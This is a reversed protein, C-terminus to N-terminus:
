RTGALLKEPEIEALSEVLGILNGLPEASEGEDDAVSVSGLEEWPKAEAVVKDEARGLKFAQTGATLYPSHTSILVQRAGVRERVVRRAVNRLRAQLEPSLRWEPEELALYREESLCLEATLSVLRLLGASMQSLHLPGAPQLYVLGAENTSRDFTTEWSGPGLEAKVGGALEQFLDWRRRQLPVVSQRADFLRDRLSQPFPDPDDGLFRFPLIAQDQQFPRADALMRRIQRGQRAMGGENTKDAHDYGSIDTKGLFWSLIKLDPMRPVCGLELATMVRSCDFESTLGASELDDASVEWEARFIIPTPETRHIAAEIRELLMPDADDLMQRQAKAVGEGAGLLRFYLEMARLLSSKGVNTPGYLSNLDHLPGLALPKQFPGYGEVIFSRLQM